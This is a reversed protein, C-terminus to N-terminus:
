SQQNHRQWQTLNARMFGDVATAVKEVLEIGAPNGSIVFKETDDHWAKDVGTVSLLAHHIAHSLNSAWPEERILEGASFIVQWPTADDDLRIAYVAFLDQHERECVRAWQEVIETDAADLENVIVSAPYEPTRKKDRRLITLLSRLM